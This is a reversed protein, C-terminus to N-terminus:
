FNEEYLKVFAKYSRTTVRQVKGTIQGIFPTDPNADSYTDKVVPANMCFDLELQEEKGVNSNRDYAEWSM